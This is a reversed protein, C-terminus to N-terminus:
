QVEVTCTICDLLLSSYTYMFEYMSTRGYIFILQHLQSRNCSTSGRDANVVNDTIHECPMIIAEGPEDFRSSEGCSAGTCDTATGTVTGTAPSDTALAAAARDSGSTRRPVGPRGASSISLSIIGLTERGVSSAKIGNGFM